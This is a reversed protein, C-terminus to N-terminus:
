LFSSKLKTTRKPQDQREHKSSSPQPKPLMQLHKLALAQLKEMNLSVADDLHKEAKLKKKGALPQATKAGPNDLKEALKYFQPTSQISLSQFHKADKPPLAHKNLDSNSMNKQLQGTSPTFAISDIDMRNVPSAQNPTKAKRAVKAMFKFNSDGMFDSQSKLATAAARFKQM